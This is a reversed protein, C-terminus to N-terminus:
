KRVSWPPSPRGDYAAPQGRRRRDRRRCLGSGSVVLRRQSPSLRSAPLEIRSLRELYSTAVASFQLSTRRPPHGPLHEAQPVFQSVFPPPESSSADDDAVAGSHHRATGRLPDAVDHEPDTRGGGSHILFGGIDPEHFGSFNGQRGTEDDYGRRARVSSLGLIYVEHLFLHPLEGFLSCGAQECDVNSHPCPHSAAPLSSSGAAWM